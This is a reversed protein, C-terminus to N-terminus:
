RFSQTTHNPPRGNGATRRSNKQFTRANYCKVGIKLSIKQGSYCKASMKPKVIGKDVFTFSAVCPFQGRCKIKFRPAASDDRGNAGQATNGALPQTRYM